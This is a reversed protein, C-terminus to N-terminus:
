DVKQKTLEAERCKCFFDHKLFKGNFEKGSHYLKNQWGVVIKCNCNICEM